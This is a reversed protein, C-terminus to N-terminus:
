KFISTLEQRLNSFALVPNEHKMFFEGLLFGRFGEQFLTAIEHKSSLGSEAVLPTSNIGLELQNKILISQDINVEFTKLNRNNVGIMDEFGSLKDIESEDHLEILVELDLSHAIQALDNIEAKTLIAAILLIVNAGMAKSQFVQYSDIIFEKRLIPKSTANRALEFDSHKAQFYDQDTLVSIGAAGEIDYGKVVEVVTSTSNIIGKSPSARKFEAIIGPTEMLSKALSVVKYQKNEIVKILENVSILQEAGAVEIRKTAVIQELIDVM